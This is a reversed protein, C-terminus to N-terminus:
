VQNSYCIRIHMIQFASPFQLFLLPFDFSYPHDLNVVPIPPVTVPAPMAFDTDDSACPGVTVTFTTNGDDLFDKVGRVTVQLM